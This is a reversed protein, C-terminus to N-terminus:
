YPSIKLDMTRWYYMRSGHEPWGRYIEDWALMRGHPLLADMRVTESAPQYRYDASLRLRASTQNPRGRHVLLSSFLLADGCTLDGGAWALPEPVIAEKGWTTARVPLEDYRHSGPLVALGGLETPCDGVPIWATWTRPTGGVYRFDQHAPKAFFETGPFITRFICCPHPLVVVGFLREFVSLLEVDWPIQYLEPLRLVDVYYDYWAESEGEV